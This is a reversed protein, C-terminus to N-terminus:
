PKGNLIYEKDLYEIQKKLSSGFNKTSFDNQFNNISFILNKEYTTITNNDGKNPNTSNSHYKQKVTTAFQNLCNFTVPYNLREEFPRIGNEQRQVVILSNQVATIGKSRGGKNKTMSASIILEESNNMLWCDVHKSNGGFQKYPVDPNKRNYLYIYHDSIAFSDQTYRM